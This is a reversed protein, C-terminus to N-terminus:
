VWPLVVGVVGAQRLGDLLGEARARRRDREAQEVGVERATPARVTTAPSPLIKGRPFSRGTRTRASCVGSAAQGACGDGVCPTRMATEEDRESAGTSGDPGPRRRVRDTQCATPRDTASIAGLMAALMLGCPVAPVTPRAVGRAKKRAAM